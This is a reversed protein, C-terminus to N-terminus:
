IDRGRNSWQPSLHCRIPHLFSLRSDHDHRRMLNLDLGQIRFGFDQDLRQVALGECRLGALTFMGHPQLQAVYTGLVSGLDSAELHRWFGRGGDRLGM